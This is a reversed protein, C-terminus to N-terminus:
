KKILEDLKNNTDTAKNDLEGLRRLVESYQSQLVAVNKATETNGKYAGEAMDYTKNLFVVLILAILSYLIVWGVKTGIDNRRETMFFRGKKVQTKLLQGIIFQHIL